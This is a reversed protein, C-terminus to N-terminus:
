NWVMSDRYVGGFFTFDASLPPINENYANSVVLRIYNTQGFRCYPTVDFAFATYGGAHYGVSDGNVYLWAEQNAAGIFLSLSKDAFSLPIFVSDTYTYQGRFYGPQEDTADLANWTHREFLPYQARTGLTHWRSVSVPNAYVALGTFWLALFTLVKKDM